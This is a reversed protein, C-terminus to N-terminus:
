VYVTYDVYISTITVLTLDVVYRQGVWWDWRSFESGGGVIMVEFVGVGAILCRLVEQFSDGGAEGVSASQVPHGHHFKPRREPLQDFAIVAARM